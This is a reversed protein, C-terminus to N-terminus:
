IFFADNNSPANSSKNLVDQCYLSIYEMLNNYCCKHLEMRRLKERLKKNWAGRFFSSYADPSINFDGGGGGGTMKSKLNKGNTHFRKLSKVNSSLIWVCYLHHQIYSGIATYGVIGYRNLTLSPARMFVVDRWRGRGNGLDPFQPHSYGCVTNWYMSTWYHFM